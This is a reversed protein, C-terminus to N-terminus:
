ASTFGPFDPLGFGARGDVGQNAKTEELGLLSLLTSYEGDM